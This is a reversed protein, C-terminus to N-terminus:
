DQAIDTRAGKHLRAVVHHDAPNNHLPRSGLPSNNAGNARLDTLIADRIWHSTGWQFLVIAGSRQNGRIIVPLSRDDAPTNEGSRHHAEYTLPAPRSCIADITQSRIM